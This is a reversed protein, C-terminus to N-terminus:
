DGQRKHDSYNTDVTKRRQLNSRQDNWRDRKPLDAAAARRFEYVSFINLNFNSLGGFAVQLGIALAVLLVTAALLQRLSISPIILPRFQLASLGYVCVVAILFSLFHAIGGGDVVIIVLAPLFFAYHMLSLLLARTTYSIPLLIALFAAGLITVFFGLATVAGGFGMYAWFRLIEWQYIWLLLIVFAVSMAMNTLVGRLTM